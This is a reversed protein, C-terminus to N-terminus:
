VEKEEEERLLGLSALHAEVDSDTEEKSQV